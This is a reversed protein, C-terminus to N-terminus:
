FGAPCTSQYFKVLLFLELTFVKVFVVINVGSFSKFSQLMLMFKHCGGLEVYCGRLYCLQVPEINFKFGSNNYNIGVM